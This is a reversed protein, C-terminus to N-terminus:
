SFLIIAGISNASCQPSMAETGRDKGIIKPYHELPQEDFDLDLRGAHCWMTKAYIQGWSRQTGNDRNSKFVETLKTKM